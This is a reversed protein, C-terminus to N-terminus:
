YWRQQPPPAQQCPFNIKDFQIPQRSKVEPTGIELMKEFVKAFEQHAEVESKTLITKLYAETELSEPSPVIPSSPRFQSSPFFVMDSTFRWIKDVNVFSAGGVVTATLADQIWTASVSQSIWQRVSNAKSLKLDGIPSAIAADKIGHAGATLLGFEKLTFGYRQLFPKYDEASRLNAPPLGVTEQAKCEGRGPRWKIDTSCFSTEVVIKGALSFVDGVSFSVGPFNTSVFDILIAVPEKLGSNQIFDASLSAICGHAGGQPGAGFNGLDHFSIRLYVPKLELNRDLFAKIGNHLKKYDDETPARGTPAAPKKNGYGYSRVCPKYTANAKLVITFASTVQLTRKSTLIM